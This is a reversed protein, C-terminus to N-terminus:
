RQEAARKKIMAKGRMAAKFSFEREIDRWMMRDAANALKLGEEGRRRHMEPPGEVTRIWITVEAKTASSM